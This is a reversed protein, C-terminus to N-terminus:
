VRSVITPASMTSARPPSTTITGSTGPWDVVAIIARDRPPLQASRGLSSCGEPALIAFVREDDDSEPRRFDGRHAIDFCQSIPILNRRM